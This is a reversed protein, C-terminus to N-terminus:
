PCSSESKGNQPPANTTAEPAGPYTIAQGPRLRENGRIVVLDGAELGGLVEFRGDV